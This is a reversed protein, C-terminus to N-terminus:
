SKGNGRRVPTAQALVLFSDVVHGGWIGVRGESLKYSLPKQAVGRISGDAPLIDHSKVLLRSTWSLVNGDVCNVTWVSLM